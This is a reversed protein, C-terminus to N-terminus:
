IGRTSLCREGLPLESKCAPFYFSYLERRTFIVKNGTTTFNEAMIYFVVSSAFLAEM